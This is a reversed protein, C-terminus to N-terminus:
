NFMYGFAKVKESDKALLKYYFNAVEKHATYEEVEHEIDTRLRFTKDRVANLHNLACGEWEFKLREQAEINKKLMDIQYALKLKQWFYQKSFSSFFNLYNSDNIEALEKALLAIQQHIKNVTM